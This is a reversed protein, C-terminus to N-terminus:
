RSLSLLSPYESLPTWDDLPGVGFSGGSSRTSRSGTTRDVLVRLVEERVPPRSWDRTELPQDRRMSSGGWGRRLVRPGTNRTGPLVTLINLTFTRGGGSVRTVSSESCLLRLRRLPPSM